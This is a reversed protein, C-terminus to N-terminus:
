DLVAYSIRNDYSFREIRWDRVGYTKLLAITEGAWSKDNLEDFAIIGGKPIRPVFSELAVKTPKFIDFDLYLLSVITQPNDKLYKPITKTADGKVLEIKPIHNVFRDSDYVKICEHLDEFSPSSLGGKYAFNPDSDKDHITLKPFGRFTDFGIIKRTINVTEFISSLKAFTLLGGGFHVGCEVISGHINLIKKFIETKVLFETLSQRPVYKAFAALKEGTTAKSNDFYEEYSVLRKEFANNKDVPKYKSTKM